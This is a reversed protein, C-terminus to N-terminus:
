INAERGLIGFVTKRLINYAERKKKWEIKYLGSKKTVYTSTGSLM